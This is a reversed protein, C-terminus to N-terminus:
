CTGRGVELGEAAAGLLRRVRGLAGAAFVLPYLEEFYWLRAFYFGIPAPDLRRGRGTREVLWGVGRRLVKRTGEGPAAAHVRALADLALATEEISPEVGPAGGWGGDAGQAALLWGLAEEMAPRVAQPVRRGLASLAALVRATGYTANAEDPAAESGFWLPAWSGDTRQAGVLYGIGRDVAGEAQEGLRGPLRDRWADMALLAHATLDPASRDFPLTGWGRCFTPIGGDRNQLGMLWRIGMAAARAARPEGPALHHLALTAGATDDADPVGGPLDTWAWGGPAAGTYPHRERTQQGLLWELVAEAGDHGLCQGLGSSAALANVSLTTLWTALDVDIAWSGDHRVTRRLFDAARATVAHRRLGSGALSMAVFSTLPAAELFGGDAPQIAELVRLTRGLTCRGALRRLPNRPPRHRFRAQGIAVLAPLAYSVVPLRLWRFWARPCAALEFPLPVVRRWAEPGGGLRGGLACATLIPASFTRDRGYRAAVARALARPELGGARAALWSEARAVARPYRADAGAGGFAAWSLLTTSINSASLVTDGWGGDANQHGALWKLGRGILPGHAQRDVQALALSATATSLASSSLRGRWHGAPVRAALLRRRVEGLTEDLSRPDTDM